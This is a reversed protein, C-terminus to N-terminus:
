LFRAIQFCTKEFDPSSSGNKGHFIWRDFNYKESSVLLTPRNKVKIFFRWNKPEFFYFKSYNLNWVSISSPIWKEGGRGGGWVWGVMVVGVWM